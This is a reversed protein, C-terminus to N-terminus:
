CILCNDIKGLASTSINSEQVFLLFHRRQHRGLIFLHKKTLHKLTKSFLMISKCYVKMWQTNLSLKTISKSSCNISYINELQLRLKRKMGGSLTKSQADKKDILQLDQLMGNIKSEAEQGQM